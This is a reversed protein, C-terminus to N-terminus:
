QAEDLEALTAFVARRVFESVPLNLALAAENVKLVFAPDAKIRLDAAKIAPGQGRTQRWPARLMNLLDGRM